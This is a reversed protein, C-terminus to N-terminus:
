DEKQAPDIPQGEWYWIGNKQELTRQASGPALPANVTPLWRAHERIIDAYQPEQALNNWEHPDTQVDYLEEAGDAYRIYRWRLSRVAHNGPNHTTIAPWPRPTTAARLQPLLSHGELSSQTPLGCLEVLSPYIDLLEAPQVCTAGRAVGPGAFILPVHTAREWLSNKGTIEKEGLHWANDSWVVIVTNDAQGTAELAELVRGLQSDMFATSALYARVLPRWQHAQQLWSLRPEPLKWHLYWSFEPTGAREHAKVEPLIIENEPPILDFWQQSAFCPVHPLRFGCAVFFPKGAPLSKLQAITADAIKWDAQEHDDTPFVGWDMPRMDDPTHVFKQPPLPMHPAIGWVNFENKQLAPPISGDHFIKGFGATFYGHAAFYQPLTVCNKTAEVVRIGPLLGCIGTTSPRRGTLLAARSPNCLPAQCHANRFLTGRAALRDMNPTHAQPHGGLCGVWDNLDDIAIFLVNPRQPKELGQFIANAAKGFRPFGLAAAGWGAWKLFDRRQM